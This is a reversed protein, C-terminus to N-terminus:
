RLGPMWKHQTRCCSSLLKVTDQEPPWTSPLRWKRTYIFVFLRDSVNCLLEGCAHIYSQNEIWEDIVVYQHVTVAEIQLGLVDSCIVSFSSKNNEYKFRNDTKCSKSWTQKRLKLVIWMTWKLAWLESWDIWKLWNSVIWAWGAINKKIAIAKQALSFLSM